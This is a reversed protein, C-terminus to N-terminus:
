TGRDRPGDILSLARARRESGSGAPTGYHRDPASPLPVLPARPLRRYTRAAARGPRHGRGHEAFRKM